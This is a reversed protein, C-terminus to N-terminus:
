AAVRAALGAGSSEQLEVTDPFDEAILREADGPSLRNSGPLRTLVSFTEYAAHGALGIRHGEVAARAREFCEHSPLVLAIAASTDLLLDANTAM